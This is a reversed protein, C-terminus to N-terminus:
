QTFSHCWLVANPAKETHCWLVSSSVLVYEHVACAILCGNSSEWVYMM